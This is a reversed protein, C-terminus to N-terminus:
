VRFHTPKYIEWHIFKEESVEFEQMMRLVLQMGTNLDLLHTRIHKDICSKWDEKHGLYWAKRIYVNEAWDRVTSTVHLEIYGSKGERKGTYFYDFEVGRISEEIAEQPNFDVIGQPRLPTKM